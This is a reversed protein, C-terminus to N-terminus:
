ICFVVKMLFNICLKIYISTKFCLMVIGCSTDLLINERLINKMVLLLFCYWQLFCSSALLHLIPGGVTILKQCQTKSYRWLNEMDQYDLRKTMFYLILFLAGDYRIKHPFFHAAEMRATFPVLIHYFENANFYISNDLKAPNNLLRMMEDRNFPAIDRLRKPMGAQLYGRGVMACSKNAILNM